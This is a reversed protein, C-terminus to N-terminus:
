ATPISSASPEAPTVVGAWPRNRVMATVATRVGSPTVVVKSPTGHSGRVTMTTVKRTALRAQIADLGTSGHELRYDVVLLDPAQTDAPAAEAWTRSAEVTEFTAVTAGWGNLLPM